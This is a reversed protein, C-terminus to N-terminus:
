VSYVRSAAAPHTYATRGARYGVRASQGITAGEADDHMMCCLLHEVRVRTTSDRLRVISRASAVRAYRRRRDRVRDHMCLLATGVTTAALVWRATRVGAPAAFFRHTYPVGESCCRLARPTWDPASRSPGALSRIGRMGYEPAALPSAGPCRSRSGACPCLPHRRLQHLARTHV